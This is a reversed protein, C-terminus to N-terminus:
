AQNASTRCSWSGSSDAQGIARSCRSMGIMEANRTNVHHDDPIPRVVVVRAHLSRTLDPRHHAPQDRRKANPYPSTM